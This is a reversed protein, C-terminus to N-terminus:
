KRHDCVCVERVHDSVVTKGIVHGNDKLVDALWAITLLEDPRVRPVRAARVLDVATLLADFEDPDSQQLDDLLKGLKCRRAGQTANRRQNLDERISM